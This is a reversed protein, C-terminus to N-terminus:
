YRGDNTARFNNSGYMINLLNKAYKLQSQIDM